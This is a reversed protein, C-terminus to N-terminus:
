GESSKTPHRAPTEEGCLLRRVAQCLEYRLLQGTELWRSRGRLTSPEVWAVRRGWDVHNVLWSRGALLLVPRQEDRLTLSIQHIQGLNTRGHRV